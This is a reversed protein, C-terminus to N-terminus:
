PLENDSLGFLHGIEHLVTARIEARAEAPSSAVALIARRYITIRDPMALHYAGGREGLPTGQYLGLLTGGTGHHDPDDSVVIAVNQLRSRFEEPLEAVAAVVEQEFARRDPRYRRRLERYPRLREARDSM